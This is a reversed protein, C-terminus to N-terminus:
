TGSSNAAMSEIMARYGERFTPFRHQYGSRVIRASRIRKNSRRSSPGAPPHPVGLEDAIFCLVEQYTAPQQDVGFYISEAQDLALLHRIMGAADDRHIRNTYLTEPPIRADGDRVMRVLRERGPGYIGGLRLCTGGEAAAIAEAEILRSAIFSTGRVPTNEDVWAGDGQTVVGTSGVLVLRESQCTSVVNRLGRVYALRYAEDTREDPSAAYVMAEVRAPLVKRLSAIDTLDARITTVGPVKTSRRIAVIEAGDMQRTLETGVYGCGAILM